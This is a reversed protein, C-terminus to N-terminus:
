TLREPVEGVFRQSHVAEYQIAAVIGGSTKTLNM